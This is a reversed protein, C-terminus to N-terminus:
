RAPALGEVILLSTNAARQRMPIARSYEPSAYWKRAQELTDFEVVVVSKPNVMGELVDFHGGAALPRGGYQGLTPFAAAQYTSFATPDTVDLYAIRYAAM